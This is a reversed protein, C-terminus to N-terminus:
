GHAKTELGRRTVQVVGYLLKQGMWGADAVQVNSIDVRTSSSALSVRHVCLDTVPSRQATDDSQSPCFCLLFDDLLFIYRSCHSTGFPRTLGVSFKNRQSSGTFGSAQHSDARTSFQGCFVKGSGYAPPDPRNSSTRLRVDSNPFKSKWVCTVTELSSLLVPFFICQSSLSGILLAWM